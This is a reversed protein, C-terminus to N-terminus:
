DVHSRGTPRRSFATLAGAALLLIVTPEPVMLIGGEGQGRGASGGGRASHGNAGYTTPRPLPPLAEVAARMPVGVEDDRGLVQLVPVRALRDYTFHVGGMDQMIFGILWHQNGADVGLMADVMGLHQPQWGLGVADLNNNTQLLLDGAGWSEIQGRGGSLRSDGAETTILDIGGHAATATVLVALGGVLRTVLKMM